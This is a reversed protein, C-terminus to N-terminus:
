FMFGLGGLLLVGYFGMSKMLSKGGDSPTAQSTGGGSVSGTPGQPAGGGSASGTPEPAGVPGGGLAAATQTLKLVEVSKLHDGTTTHPLPKGNSVGPGTQLIQHITMEKPLTWTAFIMLNQGSSKALQSKLKANMKFDALELERFFEKCKAFLRKVNKAAVLLKREFNLNGGRFFGRAVAELVTKGAFSAYKELSSPLKSKLTRALVEVVSAM